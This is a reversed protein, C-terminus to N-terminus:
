LIIINRKQLIRKKRTGHLMKIASFAKCMALTRALHISTRLHMTGDPFQVNNILHSLSNIEHVQRLQTHTHPLIKNKTQYFTKNFKIKHFTSFFFHVMEISKLFHHHTSCFFHSRHLCKHRCCPQMPCICKYHFINKM